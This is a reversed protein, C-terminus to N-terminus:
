NSKLIIKVNNYCIYSFIEMAKKLIYAISLIHSLRTIFRKKFPFYTRVCLRLICFRKCHKQALVIAAARNRKMHRSMLTIFLKFIQVSRLRYVDRLYLAKVIQVIGLIHKFIRLLARRIEKANLFAPIEYATRCASYERCDARRRVRAVAHKNRSVAM